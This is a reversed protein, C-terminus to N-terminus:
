KIRRSITDNLDLRFPEGKEDTVYRLGDRIFYVGDGVWKLPATNILRASQEPSIVQNRYVLKKGGKLFDKSYEQLVDEFSGLKTFTLLDKSAQSLRSPLIIKAGNHETVPGIVNEISTDVDSSGGAQLAYAHDNLVANILDEYEPSGPPIPLVGDLKQRIEPEDKNADNVKNRRYYNGKIQRLAGNNERGQPTSAVGLAIALLRHDKGLDTAMAALADSSGTVPDFIADSLKQAYEAQHDEDMNAFAQCLGTAETKTLIHADTGFRKAVDKYSSIRNGLEQIALTQNSWDTIPKFGLEPIGEIAFRMPDKARETKVKEAAKDWTAKQEMRTAYEPDDKQPTLARSTADMDGVSMAPMSHIAANLQAQKEVEAHMRVGEDQGYVSIFDAVDPLESVDGTNIARSLVNDVSRKLEVKAQQAQQGRRQRSARFLKIKDPLPLADIVPDGTKVNPNFAVDKSTLRPKDTPQEAAGAIGLAKHVGATITEQSYAVAGIEQRMMASILKTMVQPDKVDLAEGPNVGMAKCVNSIYARTVSDSAACFRDVIGDVTNIGYKSAYTKLIKAAACIGDQPTEFIAHGRADQGVMGSWNNGFAKINLPNCFKYGITNLVKDPVSPPTGLGAQAGSVRVDVKGAARAASGQTLGIAEPGGMADVTEQLQPWVRERLLAYTKRSVDPSMKTSGVQQFHKLAGYPDEVAMQQYASAYALASYNDKQRAIWEPSKGGIKGQYDVEDMLSAMTRESDPGFGSFAFDDILSKARTDSVEAKYAANEKLRYRQMSQDYSNIKELAVSTFAQKALPNQLKDLHTQYAKNMAERTPDYGEVATKGKMTYYGSEPNWQLERLEQDLGNLAEDAEAKVQQAEAKQAFKVSLGIGARLPQTAREMAREYDFTPQVNEGPRAFSQESQPNPTNNQYIPVQM